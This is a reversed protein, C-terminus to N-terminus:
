KSDAITERVLQLTKTVRQDPLDGDSALWIELLYALIEMENFSITTIEQGFANKPMSGEKKINALAGKRM